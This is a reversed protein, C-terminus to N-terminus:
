LYFCLQQFIQGLVVKDVVFGVPVAKICFMSKQVLPKLGPCDVHLRCYFFHCQSVIYTLVKSEKDVTM